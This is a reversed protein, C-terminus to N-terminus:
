KCSPTLLSLSDVKVALWMNYSMKLSLSALEEYTKKYPQVYFLNSGYIPNAKIKNLVVQSALHRHGFHLAMKSQINSKIKNHRLQEENYQIM